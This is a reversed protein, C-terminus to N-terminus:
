TLQTKRLFKVMAELTPQSNHEAFIYKDKFPLSPDHRGVLAEAMQKAADLEAAPSDLQWIITCLTRSLALVFEGRKGVVVRFKSSGGVKPLPTVTM